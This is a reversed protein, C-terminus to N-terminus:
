KESKNRWYNVTYPILTIVYSLGTVSTLIVGVWFLTNLCYYEGAALTVISIMLGWINQNLNIRFNEVAM